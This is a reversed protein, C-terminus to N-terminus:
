IEYCTDLERVLGRCVCCLQVGSGCGNQMFVQQNAMKRSICRGSVVEYYQLHSGLIAHNPNRDGPKMITSLDFDNPVGYKNHEKYM